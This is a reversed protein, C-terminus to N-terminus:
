NRRRRALLGLGLVGTGLIAISAPEPTPLPVCSNATVIACVGSVRPQKLMDFGGAGIITLQIDVIEEGNQAILGFFNQGNGLTFDFNNGLNDQVWVNMMGEGFNPDILVDGWGLQQGLANTGPKMELSTLQSASGGGSSGNFCATAGGPACLIDGQGQGSAVIFQRTGPGGLNPQGGPLSVGAAFNTDFIVPSGSRNTDGLQVLGPTLDGQDFQVNEECGGGLGAAQCLNGPTPIFQVTAKAPSGSALALAAALAAGALIKSLQM